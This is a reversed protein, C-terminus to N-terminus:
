QALSPDKVVKTTLHGILGAVKRPEVDGLVENARVTRPRATDLHFRDLPRHSARYGVKVLNNM